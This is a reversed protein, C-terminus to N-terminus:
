ACNWILIVNYNVRKDVEIVFFAPDLLLTLATQPRLRLLCTYLSATPFLLPHSNVPALACNDVEDCLTVLIRGDCRVM